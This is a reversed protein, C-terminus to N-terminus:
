AMMGGHAARWRWARAKVAQVSLGLAAAVEAQPWGCAWALLCPPVTALGEALALRALAEAEADQGGPVWAALPLCDGRRALRRRHDLAVTRVARALYARCEWEPRGADLWPLARLWAEQVVDEADLAPDPPLVARAVRLCSAYLAADDM